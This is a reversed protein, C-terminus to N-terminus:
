EGILYNWNCNVIKVKKFEGAKGNKVIVARGSSTRALNNDEIVLVELEKNLFEKNKELNYKQFLDVLIRSREKKTQTKLEKLGSDQTGERKSYRFVHLVDPKVKEIIKITNQFAEEKEKPHGVIIDTALITDTDIKRFRSIIDLFENVTYGRNMENLLCDDGTQLPLHIFKYMKKNKYLKILDDIINKAHKPSMMGLRLRFDKEIMLIKEILQPLEQKGNDLGYAALGQSTLLIEKAGKNLINNVEKLINEQSFSYLRKRAFKSGCYSCNGLCGESIPVIQSVENKTKKLNCLAAKDIKENNHIHVNDKIAKKIDLLNNPGISGNSINTKTILPLCGTWFVKKGQEQFYKTRDIIKKETKDIVGCTNLVIFDASNFDLVEEYEDTLLGKVIEADSENLKCGYTELYFKM